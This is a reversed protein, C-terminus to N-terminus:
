RGAHDDTGLWANKIGETFHDRVYRRARASMIANDAEHQIDRVQKLDPDDLSARCGDAFPPPHELPEYRSSLFRMIWGWM